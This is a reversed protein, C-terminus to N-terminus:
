LGDTNFLIEQQITSTLSGWHFPKQSFYIVDTLNKFVTIGVDDRVIFFTQGGHMHHRKYWAIQSPELLRILDWKKTKPRKVEVWYTRGNWTCHFDPTGAGASNEIREAFGPLHPKLLQYFAQEPKM